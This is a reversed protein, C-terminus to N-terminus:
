MVATLNTHLIAVAFFFILVYNETAFFISIVTILDNNIEM